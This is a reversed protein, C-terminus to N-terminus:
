REGREVLVARIFSAKANTYAGRDNPSEVALRHKLSAYDQRLRADGRLADRFRLYQSWQQSGSMLVHVHAYRYEPDEPSASVFLYGGDDEKEGRDILESARLRDLAELWESGPVAVVIDIIPKAPLDVVSTSGVHEIM